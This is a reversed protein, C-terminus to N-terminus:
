LACVVLGHQVIMPHWTSKMKGIPPDQQGPPDVLNADAIAM